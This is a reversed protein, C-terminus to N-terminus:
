ASWTLGPFRALASEIQDAAHRLRPLRALLQADVDATASSASSNLAAVVENASTIPVAVAAAGYEVTDRVTAYGNRRVGDILRQLQRATTPTNTTYRTFPAQRLYDRLRPEPLAALHVLGTSTAHAPLRAGVYHRVFSPEAAAAHAIYVVENGDLVTIACTHGLRDALERLVPQVFTRLDLSDLYASGLGLVRPTLSFRRQDARVYGLHMLTHLSRRATAPSLETAAAVESLTMAPREASFAEIVKLGRALGNVFESPADVDGSRPLRLAGAGHV